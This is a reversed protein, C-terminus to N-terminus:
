GPVQTNETLCGDYGLGLDAFGVSSAVRAIKPRSVKQAAPVWFDQPM